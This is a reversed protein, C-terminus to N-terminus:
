EVNRNGLKYNESFIIIYSGLIQPRGGVANIANTVSESKMNSVPIVPGNRTTSIGDHVFKTSRFERTTQMPPM